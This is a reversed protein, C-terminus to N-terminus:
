SGSLEGGMVTTHRAITRMVLAKNLAYMRLRFGRAQSM